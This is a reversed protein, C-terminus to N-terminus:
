GRRRSKKNCHYTLAAAFCASLEEVPVVDAEGFVISRNGEFRLVGPFVRRFNAILDTQCHFLVAYQDPHSSKWALRIGTGSRSQSTLYAPEGWRLTEEIEGVGETSAAVEFILDRLVLLKRRFRSPYGGFVASVEPNTMPKM